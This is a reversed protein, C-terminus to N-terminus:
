KKEEPKYKRLRIKLHAVNFQSEATGDDGSAHFNWKGSYPNLEGRNERSILTKWKATKGTETFRWYISSDGMHVSVKAPGVSTEVQWEAGDICDVEGPKGIAKEVLARHALSEKKNLNVM